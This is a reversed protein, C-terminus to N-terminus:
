TTDQVRANAIALPQAERFMTTAVLLAIPAHTAHEGVPRIRQAVVIQAVALVPLRISARHAHAVPSAPAIPALPVRPEGLRSVAAIVHDLQDVELYWQMAHPATPAAQPTDGLTAIAALGVPVLRAIPRPRARLLIPVLPVTAMAEVVSRIVASM